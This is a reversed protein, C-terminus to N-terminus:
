FVPIMQEYPADSNKFLDGSKSTVVLALDKPFCKIKMSLTILLSFTTNQLHFPASVLFYTM